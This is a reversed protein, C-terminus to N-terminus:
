LTEQVVHIIHLIQSELLSWVVALQSGIELFLEIFELFSALRREGVIPLLQGFERLLLFMLCDM